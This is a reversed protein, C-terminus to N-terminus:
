ARGCRRRRRRCPTRADRDLLGVAHPGALGALFDELRVRVRRGRGGLVSTRHAPRRARLSPGGGRRRAIVPCPARRAAARAHVQSITSATRCPSPRSRTAASAARAAPAGTAITTGRSPRPRARRRRLRAARPAAGSRRRGRGRGAPARHRGADGALRRDRAAVLEDARHQQEGAVALGRASASRTGAGRRPRRGSRPRPRPPARPPRPSGARSTGRPGASAGPGRGRRRRAGRRRPEAAVERAAHDRQAGLQGGVARAVDHRRDGAVVRAREGLVELAAAHRADVRQQGGGAAVVRGLLRERARAVSASRSPRWPM